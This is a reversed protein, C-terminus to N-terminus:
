WTIDDQQAAKYEGVTYCAKGNVYRCGDFKLHDCEVPLGEIALDAGHQKVLESVKTYGTWTGKLRQWFSTTM